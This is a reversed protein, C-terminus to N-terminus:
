ALTTEEEEKSEKKEEEEQLVTSYTRKAVSEGLDKSHAEQSQREREKTRKRQPQGIYYGRASAPPYTTEAVRQIYRVKQEEEEETTCWM